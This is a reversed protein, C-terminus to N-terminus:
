GVKWVMISWWCLDINQPRRCKGGCTRQCFKDLPILPLPKKQLHYECRFRDSELPLYGATFPSHTLCLYYISIATSSRFTDPRWHSYTVCRSNCMPIQRPIQHKYITDQTTTDPCKLRLIITDSSVLLLMYESPFHFTMIRNNTGFVSRLTLPIITQKSGFRVHQVISHRLWNGLSNFKLHGTNNQM